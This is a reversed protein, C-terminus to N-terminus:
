TTAATWFWRKVKHMMRRKGDDNCNGVVAEEQDAPLRKTEEEHFANALTMERGSHLSKEDHNAEEGSPQTQEM